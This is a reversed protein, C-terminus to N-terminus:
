GQLPQVYRFVLGPGDAREHLSVSGGLRAAAERAIALGLGSGEGSAGPGRYFAAFVQAREAAPIGPGNDVVEMVADDGARYLRLTVLGGEPTYKLANDLANALIVRLSEPTARM